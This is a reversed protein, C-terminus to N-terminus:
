LPDGRWSIIFVCLFHSPQQSPAMRVAEAELSPYFHVNIQHPGHIGQLLRLLPQLLKPYGEESTTHLLRTVWVRTKKKLPETFTFKDEMSHLPCNRLQKQATAKEWEDLISICKCIQTKPFLDHCNTSFHAWSILDWGVTDKCLDNRTNKKEGEKIGKLTLWM